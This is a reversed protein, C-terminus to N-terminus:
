LKINLENMDESVEAVYGLKAILHDDEFYLIICKNLPKIRVAKKSRLCTSYYEFLYSVM